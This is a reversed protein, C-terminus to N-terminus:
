ETGNSTVRQRAAHGTQRVASGRAARREELTTGAWIGEPMTELAYQLCNARATERQEILDDRDRSVAATEERSLRLSRRAASGRRSTTREAVPHRQPGSDHHTSM